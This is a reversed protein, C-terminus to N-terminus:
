PRYEKLQSYFPVDNIGARRPAAQRSKVARRISVKFHLINAFVMMTPATACM